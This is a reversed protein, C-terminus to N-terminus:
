HRRGRLLTALLVGFGFAAVTATLPKDEIEKAVSQLHQKAETWVREGTERAAAVAETARDHAVDRITETLGALEARLQEIDAQLSKVDIETSV